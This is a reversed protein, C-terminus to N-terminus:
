KPDCFALQFHKCKANRLNEKGFVSKRKDDKRAKGLTHFEVLIKMIEIRLESNM